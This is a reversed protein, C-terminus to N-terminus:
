YEGVRGLLLYIHRSINLEFLYIARGEGFLQGFQINEKKKRLFIENDLFIQLISINIKIESLRFALLLNLKSWDMLIWKM